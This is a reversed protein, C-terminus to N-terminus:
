DHEFKTGKVLTVAVEAIVQIKGNEDRPEGKRAAKDFLRWVELYRPSNSPSSGINDFARGM